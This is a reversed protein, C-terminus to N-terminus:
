RREGGVICEHGAWCAADAGARLATRRISNNPAMGEGGQSRSGNGCSRMRVRLAAVALRLGHPPVQHTSPCGSPTLAASARTSLLTASSTSGFFLRRSSGAIRTSPRFASACRLEYNQDRIQQFTYAGSKWLTSFKIEVRRGAIVRDAESDGSSTVDLRKAACWGAVLQEGIKGVQRSPRTRIWAFPSEAWPDDPGERVYDGRLTSAITALMLVEPDNIKYQM